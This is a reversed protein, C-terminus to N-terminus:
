PRDFASLSRRRAFNVAMAGMVILAIAWSVLSRVNAGTQVLSRGSLVESSPTSTPGAAVTVAPAPSVLREGLVETAPEIAFTFTSAQTAGSLLLSHEGAVLEAPVIFELTFTGDAAATGAKLPEAAGKLTPAVTESPAFGTARLSVTQGRTLMPRAALVKGKSDTAVINATSASASATTTPSGGATPSATPSVAANPSAPATATVTAPSPSASAAASATASASTSPSTSSSASSSASASTPATVVFPMVASASTVFAAPSKFVATLEHAAVALDSVTTSATGNVVNVTAIVSSGRKFDVTGTAVAPVVNATLVVPTNQLATAAPAVVLTTSTAAAQATSIDTVSVVVAYSTEPQFLTPDAPQFAAQLSRNGTGLATTTKSATGAALPVPAGLAVGGDLFQIAGAASAPDVSASLTVNVGKTIQSLSAALTVTPKPVIVVSGGQVYATSTNFVVSGVFEGFGEGTPGGMGLKDRCILEFRYMGSLTAPPSQAEAFAKMTNSLAVTRGGNSNTPYVNQASNAVVNWGSIPFGAGYVKAFLHVGGPCPGSMNLVMGTQWTGTSPTITLTGVPSATATSVLALPTGAVILLGLVAFARQGHRLM